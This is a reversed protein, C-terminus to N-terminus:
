RRHMLWRWRPRELVIGALALVTVGVAAAVPLLMWSSLVAAGFELLVLGITVPGPVAVMTNAKDGPTGFVTPLGILLVVSLVALVISHGALWWPTAVWAVIETLFRMVSAIRSDPARDTTVAAVSNPRPLGARM